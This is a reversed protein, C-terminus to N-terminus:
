IHILSLDADKMIQFFAEFNLYNKDVFKDYFKRTFGSYFAEDRSILTDDLDYIIGSIKM